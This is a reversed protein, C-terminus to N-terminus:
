EVKFAISCRVILLGSAWRVECIYCVECSLCYRYINYIYRHPMCCEPVLSM